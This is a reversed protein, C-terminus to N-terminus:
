RHSVREYRKVDNTVIPFIKQQRLSDNPHETDTPGGAAMNTNAVNHRASAGQNNSPDNSREQETDVDLVFSVPRYDRPQPGSNSRSEAMPHGELHARSERTTHTLNIASMSKGNVLPPTQEGEHNESQQEGSLPAADSPFRSGLIDVGSYPGRCPTPRDGPECTAQAYPRKKQYGFGAIWTQMLVNLIRLIIKLPWQPLIAEFYALLRKVATSVPMLSDRHSPFLLHQM